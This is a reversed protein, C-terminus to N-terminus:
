ANVFFNDYGFSRLLSAAGDVAWGKAIGGFDLSQEPQLTITDGEIRVADFDTDIVGVSPEFNGEEFSHTYGLKAASALPNFLGGTEQYMNKSIDMLKLFRSSVRAIKHRNLLSLSSEPLFRSFEEEVSAFYEFVQTIRDPTHAQESIVTM